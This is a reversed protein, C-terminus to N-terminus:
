VSQAKRLSVLQLESGHSFSMFKQGKLDNRLKNENSNNLTGYGCNMSFWNNPCFITDSKCAKPLM